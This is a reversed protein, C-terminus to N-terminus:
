LREAERRETDAVRESRGLDRRLEVAPAVRSRDGRRSGSDARGRKALRAEVDLLGDGLPLPHARREGRRAVVAGRRERVEDEEPRGRRLLEGVPEFLLPEDNTTKRVRNTQDNPQEDLVVDQERSQARRGRRAR